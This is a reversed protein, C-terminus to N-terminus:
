AASGGASSTGEGILRTVVLRAAGMLLARAVKGLMTEEPRAIQEPHMWARRLMRWREGRRRKSATTARHIGIAIVGVLCAGAVAAVLGLHRGVQLPVNLAERRRRGLAGLTAALRWRVLNARRALPASSEDPRPDM